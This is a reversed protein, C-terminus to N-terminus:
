KARNYYFDWDTVDGLISRLDTPNPLGTLRMDLKFFDVTLAAEEFWEEIMKREEGSRSALFRNLRDVGIMYSIRNESDPLGTIRRTLWECFVEAYSLEPIYYNYVGKLGRRSAFINQFSHIIEHVIISRQIEPKDKLATAFYEQDYAIARWNFNLGAAGKGGSLLTMTKAGTPEIGIDELSIDIGKDGSFKRALQNIKNFFGELATRNLKDLGQYLVDISGVYLTRAALFIKQEQSLQSLSIGFLRQARQELVIRLADDSGCREICNEIRALTKEFLEYGFYDGKKPIYVREESLLYSLGQINKIALVFNKIKEDVFTVLMREAERIEDNFIRGSQFLAQFQKKNSDFLFISGRSTHILYYVTFSEENFIAIIQSPHLNEVLQGSFFNRKGQENISILSVPKNLSIDYTTIGGVRKQSVMVDFEGLSLVSKEVHFNGRKVLLRIESPKKIRLDFLLDNLRGLLGDSDKIRYAKSSAEDLLYLANSATKLYIYTKDGIIVRNQSDPSLLSFQSNSNARFLINGDKDILFEGINLVRRTKSISSSFSSSGTKPKRSFFNKWKEFFSLRNSASSSGKKGTNAVNNSSIFQSIYKKVERKDKGLIADIFRAFFNDSAQLKNYVGKTQDILYYAGSSTRFLQYNFTQNNATFQIIEGPKIELSSPSTIKTIEQGNIDIIRVESISFSKFFEDSFEIEYGDGKKVFHLNGGKGNKPRSFGGKSLDFDLSFSSSSSSISSPSQKRRFINFRKKLEDFSKNFNAFFPTKKSPSLYTLTIDKGSHSLIYDGIFIKEGGLGFITGGVRKESNQVFALIADKASLSLISGKQSQFQFKSPPTLGLKNYEEVFGIYGRLTTFKELFDKSLTTTGKRIGELTDFLNSDLYIVRSEFDIIGIGQLNQGKVGSSVKKHIEWGNLEDIMDALTELAEKQNDKGIGRRVLERAKSLGKSEEFVKVLIGEPTPFYGNKELFSVYKKALNIKKLDKYSDAGWDDLIRIVLDDRNGISRSNLDKWFNESFSLVSVSSPLTIDPVQKLFNRKLINIDEETLSSSFRKGLNEFDGRSLFNIFEDQQARSLNRFTKKFNESAGEFLSKELSSPAFEGTFIFRTADALKGLFNKGSSVSPLVGDFRLAHLFKDPNIGHTRAINRVEADFIPLLRDEGSRQLLDAYARVAKQFSESGYDGFGWRKAFQASEWFAKAKSIESPSLNLGSVFDVFDRAQTLQDFWSSPIVGGAQTKAIEAYNPNIYPLVRRISFQPNNLDNIGFNALVKKGLDTLDGGSGLLQDKFRPNNNFLTKATDLVKSPNFSGIAIDEAIQKALAETAEQEIEKEVSRSLGRGLWDGYVKEVERVVRGVLGPGIKGALAAPIVVPAGFLGGVITEGKKLATGVGPIKTVGQAMAETDTLHGALKLIGGTLRRGLSIKTTGEVVQKTGQQLGEEVLEATMKKVGGAIVREGMEKFGKGILSTISHSLIPPTLVDAVMFGIDFGTAAAAAISEKSGAGYEFTAQAYKIFSNSKDANLNYSSSLTSLDNIVKMVGASFGDIKGEQKMLDVEQNFYRGKGADSLNIYFAQKKLLSPEIGNQKLKEANKDVWEILNRAIRAEVEARSLQRGAVVNIVGGVIGSVMHGLIPVDQPTNTIFQNTKKGIYYDKDLSGLVVDITSSVCKYGPPCDDAFSIENSFSKSNCVGGAKRCEIGLKLEKYSPAIQPNECFQLPVSYVVNNGTKSNNGKYAVCVYCSGNSFTYKGVSNEDKCIKNVNALSAPDSTFSSINKNFDIASVSTLNGNDIQLDLAAATILDKKPLCVYRSSYGQKIYSEGVDTCISNPNDCWFTIGAFNKCRGYMGGPQNVKRGQAVETLTIIKKINPNENENCVWKKQIDSYICVGNCNGCLIKDKVESFKLIAENNCKEDVGCFNLKFIQQLKDFEIEGEKGKQLNDIAIAVAKAQRQDEDSVCIGRKGFAYYGVTYEVLKLGENCILKSGVRCAPQYLSGCNEKGRIVQPRVYSTNEGVPECSFGEGKEVCKGEEMKKCVETYICKGLGKEECIRQCETKKSNFADQFTKYLSQTFAVIEDWTNCKVEGTENIGCRHTIADISKKCKGEVCFLGGCCNEDKECYENEKKCQCKKGKVFFDCASGSWYGNVCRCENRSINLLQTEAIKKIQNEREKRVRDLDEKCAYFVKKSSEDKISICGGSATPCSQRCQKFDSFYTIGEYTFVSRSSSSSSDKFDSPCYYVTVTKNSVKQKFSPCENRGVLDECEVKCLKKGTPGIYYNKGGENIVSPLQFTQSTTPLLYGSAQSASTNIPQSSPQNGIELPKSGGGPTIQPWNIQPTGTIAPAGATCPTETLSGPKEAIQCGETWVEMICVYKGLNVDCEQRKCYSVVAGVICNAGPTPGCPKGTRRGPKEKISCDTDYFQEVEVYEGINTDCDERVIKIVQGPTCGAVTPAPPAGVQCRQSCQPYRYVWQGKECQWVHEVGAGEWCNENTGACETRWAGEQCVGSAKPKSSLHKKKFSNVGIFSGIILFLSILLLSSLGIFGKKGRSM